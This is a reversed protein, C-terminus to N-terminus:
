IPLGLMLLAQTLGDVDTYYGVAVVESGDLASALPRATEGLDDPRPGPAASWDGVDLGSLLPASLGPDVTYFGVGLCRDGVTCTVTMESGSPAGDADDPVAAREATATTGSIDVHLPRLTNGTGSVRHSGV